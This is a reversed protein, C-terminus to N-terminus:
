TGVAKIEKILKVDMPSEYEPCKYAIAVPTMPFPFDPNAKNWQSELSIMQPIYKCVKVKRCNTCSKTSPSYGEVSTSATM